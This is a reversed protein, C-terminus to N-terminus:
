QAKTHLNKTIKVKIDAGSRQLVGLLGTRLPNVNVNHLTLHADKVLLALVIFFAASSFDGSVEWDVPLCEKKGAPVIIRKGIRKGADNGAFNIRDKQEVYQKKRIRLHESISIDQTVLPIGASILMHETHDRCPIPEIIETADESALAALLIASKVQASPIPLIYSVGKIKNTALSAIPLYAEKVMIEDQPPESGLKGFNILQNKFWYLAKDKTYGFSPSNSVMFKAGMAQLPAVARLMPRKHLSNDGFFVYNLGLVCSAGLLLRASTGSNGLDCVRAPSSASLAGRDYGGRKQLQLSKELMSADLITKDGIKDIKVGSAQAWQLTCQVDESLLLNTITSIGKSLTSLIVARHSISKDPPPIISDDRQKFLGRKSKPPILFQM